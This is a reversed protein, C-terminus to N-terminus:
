LYRAKVELENATGLLLTPIARQSIEDKMRHSPGTISFSGIPADDSGIVPVGISWLGSISEGKNLSYGRERIVALDDFLEERTTYTNETEAPLGWRDIVDGIKSDTMHALVAKGGASSHLYRQKGIRRDAQVAHEGYTAYLYIAQGHEEVFFQAREGTEDALERVLPEALQYVERRTRAHEGLSLFKLGVYYVRHEKIIYGLDLLASLQQHVTSKALGLENALETVRSGDNAELAEIIRFTTRTSKVSRPPDGKAM